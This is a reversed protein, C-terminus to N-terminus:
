VPAPLVLHVPCSNKRAFRITAWTGSRLKEQPEGLAALLMESERVIARNRTLYARPAREEDGQCFARKTLVRPPHIVVRTGPLLERVLAHFQADAGLCDGHHVEGPALQGLAEAIQECQCKTLGGQTGTFGLVRIDLVQIRAEPRSTAEEGSAEFM